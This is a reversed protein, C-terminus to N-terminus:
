DEQKTIESIKGLHINIGFRCNFNKLNKPIYLVDTSKADFLHIPVRVKRFFLSLLNDGLVYVTIPRYGLSFRFGFNYPSRNKYGYYFGPVIKFSRYQMKRNFGAMVAPHLGDLYESYAVTTIEWKENPKWTAGVFFKPVLSSIADEDKERFGLAAELSDLYGDLNFSDSVVFQAADIGSFTFEGKSEVTQVDNRWQIFGLDLVSASLTWKKLQYNLGFDIAAGHNLVGSPNNRFIESLKEPDSTRFTYDSSLTISYDGPDTYLKLSNGSSAALATGTLYKLTTGFSFRSHVYVYNLAYERYKIAKVVPAINVEKGLFRANGYWLLAPLEKPYKINLSAKDSLSFLFQHEGLRYAAAFWQFGLHAFMHNQASLGDIGRPVNFQISDNSLKDFLRNYTFGTNGYNLVASPLSLSLGEQHATAPNVVTAQLLDHQQFLTLEQQAQAVCAFFTLFLCTLFQKM